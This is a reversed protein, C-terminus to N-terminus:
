TVKDSGTLLGCQPPYSAVEPQAHASYVEPSPVQSIDSGTVHSVDSGTMDIETMRLPGIWRVIWRLHPKLQVWISSRDGSFNHTPAGSMAISIYEISCTIFNELPKRCTPPKRQNGQNGGGYFQGGLYLQFIGYSEDQGRLLFPFFLIIISIQTKIIQLVLSSSFMNMRETTFIYIPM